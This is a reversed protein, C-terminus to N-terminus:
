VPTSPLATDVLVLDHLRQWISLRAYHTAQISGLTTHAWNAGVVLSSLEFVLSETDLEPSLQGDDIAQKVARTLTLYWNQNIEIVKDHITGDLNSYENAVSLLFCGGPFVDEQIYNLWKDCYNWVLLYNQSARAPEIIKAIFLDVVKDLIMLQMTEKSGFHAFVGSKSMKMAAALQGITLKDLGQRSTLDIAVQLILEETNKDARTTKKPM